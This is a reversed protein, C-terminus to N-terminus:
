NCEQFDQRYRIEKGKSQDIQGVVIDYTMRRPILGNSRDYDLNAIDSQGNFGHLRFSMEDWRNATEKNNFM